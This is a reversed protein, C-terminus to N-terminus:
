IAQRRRVYLASGVGAALLLTLTSPEPIPEFRVNDVAFRAATSLFRLEARSFPIPSEIGAFGGVYAPDHLGTYSLSGLSAGGADFLEITTANPVPQTITTSVAYGFGFRQEAEPFILELIGRASGEVWAPECNNSHGPGTDTLVHADTSPSGNITFGFDVGGITAGNVVQHTNQTGFDILSASASFATKDIAILIPSAQAAKAALALLVFGILLHKTNM